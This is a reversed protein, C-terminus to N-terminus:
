RTNVSKGFFSNGGLIRLTIEFGGRGNSAPRLTSLNADYSFGIAYGSLELMSSIVLADGARMYAGLYAGAGKYIGTYKSEPLIDYRIMSGVLINRNPGQSYVMFGPNIAFKSGPISFLFNGHVVMRGWLKEGTNNFSYDPRNFHFYSVGLSGKLFNNSEVRIKGGQNDFSWVLGTAFDLYTFNPAGVTEGTPLTNNFIGDAYQSGWEFNTYDINRQGWGGSFGLGIKHIKNLRVHYAASLAVTTTKLLGDGAEDYIFQAGAAFFNKQSKKKIFRGHISSGFTKYPVTVSKWQTRYATNFELGATAGALAPNQHLPAMYFQSFHVDQSLLNSGGFLLLIAVSLSFPKPLFIKKM